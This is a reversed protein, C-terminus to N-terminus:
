NLLPMFSFLAHSAASSLSGNHEPVKFCSQIWLPCAGRSSAGPASAPAPHSRPALRVTRRTWALFWLYRNATCQSGTQRGPQLACQGARPKGAGVLIQVLKWQFLFHRPPPSLPASLHLKPQLKNGELKAKCLNNIKWNPSM